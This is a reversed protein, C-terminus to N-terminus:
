WHACGELIIETDAHGRFTLGDRELEKRLAPFNYVEGNYVIVYRGCKSTMPQHGAPSVDIIALRRNALGIGVQEDVWEGGDDPGRHRIADNMARLRTMLTAQNETPPVWFGAIGCM